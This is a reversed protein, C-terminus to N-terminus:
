KDLVASADGSSGQVSGGSGPSYLKIEVRRADARATKGKGEGKEEGLGIAAINMPSINKEVLYREVAEARRRSLTLNYSSTGTTDTYGMLEIRSRPAAMAKEIMGDLEAKADKTLEYKNFGFQVKETDVLSYSMQDGLKTLEASQASIASANTAIASSNSQAQQLAQGATGNAEQATNAVSALHNDTTTIRENLQSIENQQQGLAAKGQAQLQTLRQDVPAIKKGVYSRTACGTGAFLAILPISAILNKRAISIMTVTVDGM